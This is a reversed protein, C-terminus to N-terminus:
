GKLIALMEEIEKASAMESGVALASSHFWPAQTQRALSALNNSRVGGGCIVEFGEKQPALFRQATLVGKFGIEVLQNLGLEWNIITDFARHFYCPVGKAAALMAENEAKAIEGKLNLCGFVFGQVGIEMFTEISKQMIEIEAPTYVFSGPKCRILVHIPLSSFNVIQELDTLSPTVGGVAYNHSYEIRHAGANIAVKASEITFCAIELNAKM